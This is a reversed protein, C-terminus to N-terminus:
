VLEAQKLLKWAHELRQEGEGQVIGFPIGAATLHAHYMDFLEQRRHPHERQPDPEWPLDVDTLLHYTYDQLRLDSLICPAAEGYKVESWIRVVLLHTDCILWESAKRAYQVEWQLQGEAIACLDAQEYPRGLTELYSRAFEPVWQTNLRDALASALSSKGTSEPGVIALKRLSSILALIIPLLL